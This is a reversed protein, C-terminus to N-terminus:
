WARMANTIGEGTAFRQESGHAFLNRLVDFYHEILKEDTNYQRFVTADKYGTIDFYVAGCQYLNQMSNDLLAQMVFHKPLHCFINHDIGLARTNIVDVHGGQHITIKLVARACWAFREGISFKQKFHVVEARAVEPQATISATFAACNTRFDANDAESVGSVEVIVRMAPNGHEAVPPVGGTYLVPSFTNQEVGANTIESFHLQDIHRVCFHAGRHVNSLQAYPPPVDVTV